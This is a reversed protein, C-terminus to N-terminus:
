SRLVPQAAALAALSRQAAPLALTGEQCRPAGTGAGRTLSQQSLELAASAAM